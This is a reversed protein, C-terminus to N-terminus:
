GHMAARAHRIRAKVAASETKEARDFLAETEVRLAPNRTALVGLGNYAWARTFARRSGILGLLSERLGAEQGARIELYPLTQLVHLVADPAEVRDLLRIFGPVQGGRPAAGNEALHKLVWTAGVQLEMEDSAALRLLTPMASPPDDRVARAVARFPEVRKGDYSRLTNAIDLPGRRTVKRNRLTPNSGPKRSVQM